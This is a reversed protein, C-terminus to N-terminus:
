IKARIRSLSVQTIGMYSALDGLSIRKLLEGQETLFRNYRRIGDEELMESIRNMMNMSASSVLTRLFKEICHHRQCLQDLDRKAILTVTTKELALVDYTSPSQMFYSDLVTFMTNEPFFRMIFEKSGNEFSTKALGNDIFFVYRCVQGSKLLYDGKDFTKCKLKEQLENNAIPTLPSLLNAFQNFGTM